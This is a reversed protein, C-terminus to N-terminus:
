KVPLPAVPTALPAVLQAVHPVLNGLTELMQPTVVMPLGHSAMGAGMGEQVRLAAIAQMTNLLPALKNAEYYNNIVTQIQPDFGFTDAFGIFDLRIGDAELYERVATEIIKMMPIMEENAKDFTRLGIENCVLTQVRKHVVRDAVDDLSRGFFVSQFINDKDEVFKVSESEKPQQVGFNYLYRAAQQETVSVGISVGARINIGEKSQCPFSEDSQSTGKNKGAVWERTIPSRNVIFLRGDPVFYDWGSLLSKGNSGALKHHPIEFLRAAIKKKNFFAESDYESQNAATDGVSPVWFVSHNPAIQVVETRDATEAFPLASTATMSLGAAVVMSLTFRKNTM